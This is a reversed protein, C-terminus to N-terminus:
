LRVRQAARLVPLPYRTGRWVIGRQRACALGSRVVLAAFILHGVPLLLMPLLRRGTRRALIAGVVALSAFAAAGLARIWPPGAILAVAPGLTMACTGLLLAVGRRWQNHAVFGFLNKEFGQAMEKMSGYWRLGVAGSGLVFGARAGARRLLLGLGVDDLVEMRLWAFGESRELVERRVLNFAGIGAYADSGPEGIRHARTIRLFRDGVADVVAEELIAGSEVEPMVVLHDLDEALCVAIAQDLAPPAFHVDADTFLLWEGTAAAAGVDLAHVKGLWGAPLERVHIARIRPDRAALADVIAGTGDTSRDDVLVIELEPYDVALLTALAAELTTAENCAAIVVSLRPWRPPPAAVVDRLRRLRRLRLLSTLNGLCWAISTVGGWVALLIEVM